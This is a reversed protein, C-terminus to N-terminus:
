EAQGDSVELVYGRRRRSKIREHPALRARARNVLVRVTARDAESTLEYGYIGLTIQELTVIEGQRARMFEVLRKSPVTM